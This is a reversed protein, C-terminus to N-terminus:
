AQGPLDVEEPGVATLGVCEGDVGEGFRLPRDERVEPGVEGAGQRAIGDFVLGRARGHM